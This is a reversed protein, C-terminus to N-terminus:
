ENFHRRVRIERDLIQRITHKGGPGRRVLADADRNAIEDEIKRLDFPTTENSRCTARANEIASRDIGRTASGRL